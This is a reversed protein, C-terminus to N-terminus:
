FIITVQMGSSPYFFHATLLCDTHASTAQAKKRLIVYSILSWSHIEWLFLFPLFSSDRVVLFRFLVVDHESM